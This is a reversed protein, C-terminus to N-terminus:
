RRLAKVAVVAPYVGSFFAIYLGRWGDRWGGRRLFLWPVRLSAVAFARAVDLPGTQLGAAELTTYRAFKERYSALTPYTDHHLAGALDASEGRVIWREHLEASGGAAPQAVPEAEATRFLRLLREDGWGAGRIPKGCFYNVRRVRYGCCTAVPQAEVIATRLTADFREDADLMFTWPTSVLTLAHRRAEVFGAWRRVVTTAGLSRAIEVTEDTSEADLVLM